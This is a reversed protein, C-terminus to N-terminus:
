HASGKGFFGKRMPKQRKVRRKQGPELVSEPKHEPKSEAAEDAGADTVAQVAAHRCYLASAVLVLATGLVATASQAAGPLEPLEAM